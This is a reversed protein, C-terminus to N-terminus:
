RATGKVYQAAVGAAWQIEREPARLDQELVEDPQQEVGAEGDAKRRLAARLWLAETVSDSGVRVAQHGAAPDAYPALSQTGDRVTFAMYAVDLTRDGATFMERWRSRRDGLVLHPFADAIDSWLPHIRWIARQDRVYRVLSRMPAIILGALILLISAAVIVDSLADVTANYGFDRDAITGVVISIRHVTYVVGLTCGLALSSVGTRALGRPVGRRGRWFVMSGILMSAGLYGYFIAMYACVGADDYHQVIVDAATATEPHPVAVFFLVAMFAASTAVLPFNARIRRPDADYVAYLYDFLFAISTMAALHRALVPLGPVWDHLAGADFGPRNTLLAVGLAGICLALSRSVRNRNALAAPLRWLAVGILAAPLLGFLLLNM